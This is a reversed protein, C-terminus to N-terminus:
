SRHRRAPSYTSLIRRPACAPSRGTSCGVLNSSTMLRCVALASPRVMGGPTSAIASSTISHVAALEDRQEAARRDCPWRRPPRLLRRLDQRTQAFPSASNAPILFAAPATYSTLHNYRDTGGSSDWRDSVGIGGRRLRALTQVRAHLDNEMSSHALTHLLSFVLCVRLKSNCGRWLGAHLSLSM